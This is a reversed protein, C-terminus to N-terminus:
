GFRSPHFPALDFPVEVGRALAALIEGMVPGASFGLYPFTGVVLGPAVDDLAAIIPMEDPVGNNVGVWTRLLRARGVAPVVRRAVALNRRVGDLDVAPRGTRPHVTAPWGGGILLSGIGAQKLTLRDGAFYVLHPVLPTVVETVNVQMPHGEIPLEVGLMRGLPATDAGACLVLRPARFRGRTTSLEFGDRTREIAQVECHREIRAGARLAAAAFAPTALLPNAKGEIPCLEGGVMEDAVYPAVRRLDDRSLLQSAVGHANELAVKREIMRLQREDSAVLLGGGLRLEVDVGLEDNLGKWIEVSADLLELSPAWRRAWVEGNDRFPSFQIQGHMSGANAGSAQTGLDFRDILVTEVGAQALRYATAAGTIGGGVVLVETTQPPASVM